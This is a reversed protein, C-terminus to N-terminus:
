GTRDAAPPVWDPTEWVARGDPVNAIERLVLRAWRSKPNSSVPSIKMFVLGPVWSSIPPNGQPVTTDPGIVRLTITPWTTGDPVSIWPRGSTQAMPRISSMPANPAPRADTLPSGAACVGAAAPTEGCPGVVTPWFANPITVPLSPLSRPTGYQASHVAPMKDM